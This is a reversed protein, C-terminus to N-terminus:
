SGNCNVCANLFKSPAAEGQSCTPCPTSDLGSDNLILCGEFSSSSFFYREM